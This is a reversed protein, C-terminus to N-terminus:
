YGFINIKVEMNNFDDGVVSGVIFLGGFLQTYFIGVNGRVFLYGPIGFYHIMIDNIMLTSYSLGTELGVGIFEKFMLAGDVFTVVRSKFIFNLIDVLWDMGAMRMFCM